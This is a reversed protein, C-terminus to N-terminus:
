GISTYGSDGFSSGSSCGSCTGFTSFVRRPDPAGCVPCKLASDKKNDTEMSHRYEEFREGCKECEYEFIPM